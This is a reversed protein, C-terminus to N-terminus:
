QSVFLGHFKRLYLLYVLFFVSYFVLPFIFYNSFFYISVLSILFSLMGFFHFSVLGLFSLRCYTYAGLTFICSGICYGLLVLLSNFDLEHSSMIKNVVFLCIISVLCFAVSMWFSKFLFGYTLNNREGRGFWSPLLPQIQITQVMMHFVQGIAAYFAYQSYMSPLMVFAFIFRDMNYYSGRLLVVSFYKGFGKGRFLSINRLKLLRSFDGFGRKLPSLLRFVGFLISFVCFLIISTFLEDISESFVLFLLYPFLNRLSLVILQGFVDVVQLYRVIDNIVGDLILIVLFLCFYTYSFYDPFYVGFTIYLLYYVVLFPIARLLFLKAHNLLVFLKYSSFRTRSFKQLFPIYADFSMFQVSIAICSHFFFVLAVDTDSYIGAILTFFVFKFGTIALKIITLIKYRDM